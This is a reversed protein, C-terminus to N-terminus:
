SQSEEVTLGQTSGLYELPSAYMVISVDAAKLPWHPCINWVHRQFSHHHITGYNSHCTVM